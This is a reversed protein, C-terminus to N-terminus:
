VQASKKDLDARGLHWVKLPCGTTHNNKCMNYRQSTNKIIAQLDMMEEMHTQLSRSDNGAAIATVDDMLSTNRSPLLEKDGDNLIEAEIHCSEQRETLCKSQRTVAAHLETYCDTSLLKSDPDLQIEANVYTHELHTNDSMNNEYYHSLRDAVKNDVGDVHM